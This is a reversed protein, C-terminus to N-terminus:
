PTKGEVKLEDSDIGEEDGEGGFLLPGEIQYSLCYYDFLDSLFLPAFGGRAVHRFHRQVMHGINGQSSSFPIPEEM